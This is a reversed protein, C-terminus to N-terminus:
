EKEKKREKRKGRGGRGSCAAAISFYPFSISGRKRFLKRKTMGEKRGKEKKGGGRLTPGTPSSLVSLTKLAETTLDEGEEKKRHQL